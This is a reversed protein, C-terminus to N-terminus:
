SETSKETAFTRCLLAVLKEVGADDNVPSDGVDTLGAEDVADQDDGLEHQSLKLLHSVRRIRELAVSASSPQVNELADLLHRSKGNLDDFRIIRANPVL